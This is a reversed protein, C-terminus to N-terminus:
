RGLRALVDDLIARSAAEDGWPEVRVMVGTGNPTVYSEFATQELWDQDRASRAVLRAHDHTVSKEDISYGRARLATEGAAAVTQVNM